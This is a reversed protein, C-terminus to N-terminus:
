NRANEARELEDIMSLLEQHCEDAHDPHWFFVPEEDPDLLALHVEHPRSLCLTLFSRCVQSLRFEDPKQPMHVTLSCDPLDTTLTKM